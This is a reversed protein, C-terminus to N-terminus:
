SLLALRLVAGALVITCACAIVSYIKRSQRDTKEKILYYLGAALILAGIILGIISPIM